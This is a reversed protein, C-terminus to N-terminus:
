PERAPRRTAGAGEGTALAAQADRDSVREWLELMLMALAPDSREVRVTYMLKKHHPFM